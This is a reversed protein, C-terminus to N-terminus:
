PVLVARGRLTHARMREYAQAGAGLPFREVEVKIAGSHALDLVEILDSRTGWVPTRVGTGGPLTDIGVPIAGPSLGVMVIDACSGALKAALDATAEIGV